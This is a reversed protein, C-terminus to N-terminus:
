HTLISQVIPTWFDADATETCWQSEVVSSEIRVDIAAFPAGCPEAIHRLVEKFFKSRSIDERALATIRRLAEVYYEPTAPQLELESRAETAETEAQLVGLSETM